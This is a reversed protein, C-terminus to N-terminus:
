FPRSSRFDLWRIDSPMITVYAGPLEVQSTHPSSILSSVAMVRNAFWSPRPQENWQDQKQDTQYLSRLSVRGSDSSSSSM